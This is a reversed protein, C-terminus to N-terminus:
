HEKTFEVYYFAENGKIETTTGDMYEVKVSNIVLSNASNNYMIPDFEGLCLSMANYPGTCKLIFSSQGSITDKIIDDVRNKVSVDFYVYKIKKSSNNFYYISPEFGGVSNLHNESNIVLLAPAKRDKIIGKSTIKYIYGDVGLLTGESAPEYLRGALHRPIFLAYYAAKQTGFDYVKPSSTGDFSTKKFMTTPRSVTAISYKNNEDPSLYYIDNSFAYYANGKKLDKTTTKRGDIYVYYWGDWGAKDKKVEYKITKGTEDAFWYTNCDKSKKLAVWQNCRVKGNKDTYYTKGNLVLKGSIVLSGDEGFLYYDNGSKLKTNTLKKGDKYYYKKDNVTVWGKKTSSDKSNTVSTTQVKTEEKASVSLAPFSSVIGLVLTLAVLSKIKRM